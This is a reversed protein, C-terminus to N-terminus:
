AYLIIYQIGLNGDNSVEKIPNSFNRWQEYSEFVGEPAEIECWFDGKLSLFSTVLTQYSGFVFHLFLPCILLAQWKGFNGVLRIIQDDEDTKIKKGM